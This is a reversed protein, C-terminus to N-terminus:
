LSGEAVLSARVGERYTPYELAGILKERVLSRCRRGGLRMELAAPSLVRKADEISVPDPLKKKLLACTYRAVEITEAPEEDCGIALPPAGPESM